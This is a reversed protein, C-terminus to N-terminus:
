GPFEKTMETTLSLHDAIFRMEIVIFMRLGKFDVMDKLEAAKLRVMKPKTSPKYGFSCRLTHIYEFQIDVKILNLMYM